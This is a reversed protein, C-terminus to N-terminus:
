TPDGVKCLVVWTGGVKCCLVRDSTAFSASANCKFRKNSSSSEGDFRVIIGRTGTTYVTVITGLRFVSDGSVPLQPTFLEDM